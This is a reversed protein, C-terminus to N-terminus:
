RPSILTERILRSGAVGITTRKHAAFPAWSECGIAAALLANNGHEIHGDLPLHYAALAMDADFLLWRAVVLLPEPLTVLRDVILTIAGHKVLDAFNGAHFAHRYNLSESRLSLQDLM